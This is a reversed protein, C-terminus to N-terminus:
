PLDLFLHGAIALRFRDIKGSDLSQDVCMAIPSIHREFGKTGAIWARSDFSEESLDSGCEAELNHAVESPADCCQFGARGVAIQGNIMTGSLNRCPCYVIDMSHQRHTYPVEQICQLSLQFIAPM